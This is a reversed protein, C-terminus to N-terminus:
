GCRRFSDITKCISELKDMAHGRGGTGRRGVIDGWIELDGGKLEVGVRDFGEEGKREARGGKSRM